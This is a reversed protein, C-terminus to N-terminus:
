IGIGFVFAMLSPEDFRDSSRDYNLKKEKKVENKHSPNKIEIRNETFIIGLFSLVVKIQQETFIQM